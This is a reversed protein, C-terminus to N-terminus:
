HHRLRPPRGPTEQCGLRDHHAMLSDLQPPPHARIRHPDRHRTHQTLGQKKYEEAHTWERVTTANGACAVSQAAPQPAAAHHAPPQSSCLTPMLIATAHRTHARAPTSKSHGRQPNGITASQTFRGHQRHRTPISLTTLQQPPDQLRSHDSDSSHRSPEVCSALRERHPLKLRRRSFYVMPYRYREQIQLRCVNYLLDWSDGHRTWFIVVRKYFSM